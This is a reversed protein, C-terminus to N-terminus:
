HAVAQQERDASAASRLRIRTPARQVVVGHLTELFAAFSDTDYADFIGSIRLARISEDDIELELRGYRNFEAAVEGLPEDEFEIQRRLWAVTARADVRRPLGVRDSVELQYGADLRTADPVLLGSSTLPPARGAFVAVSGEVVTVVVTGSKRYVDFETGVAIVGAPGAEIRFRRRGDHAVEFFAQGRALRVVREHRSYRVTAESDTNLHLVSGDPLEQVRQEARATSYTQPLGFREGNRTWWIVTVAILLFLLAAGAARPWHRRWQWPRGPTARHRAPRALIFINEAESSGQALLSEVDLAPDDAAAPFDRATAAIRLYEEVHVPSAKLWAMFAARARRDLSENRNEVFWAAADGAIVDRSHTSDSTM